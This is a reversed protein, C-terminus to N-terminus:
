SLRSISWCLRFAQVSSEVHIYYEKQSYKVLVIKTLKHLYEIFIIEFSNQILIIKTMNM